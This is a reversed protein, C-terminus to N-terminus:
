RSELSLLSADINRILAIMSDKTASIAELMYYRHRNKLSKLFYRYEQDSKLAEFDLPVMQPDLVHVDKGNISVIHNDEPSEKATGWFEDFRSSYITSSAEELLVRYRINQSVMAVAMYDFFNVLQHRLQENRILNLDKSKLSEFTGMNITPTILSNTNGFHYKLSDQYDRGSVLWVLLLDMSNKARECYWLSIDFGELDKQLGDKMNHLTSIEDIKSKGAENWNNIQLAILIGVVVLAIEGIAYRLYQM